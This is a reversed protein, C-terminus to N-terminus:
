YILGIVASRNLEVIILMWVLYGLVGTIFIGFGMGVWFAARAPLLHRRRRVIAIPVCVKQPHEIPLNDPPLATLTLRPLRVSAPAAIHKAEVGLDIASLVRSGSKRAPLRVKGSLNKNTKSKTHKTNAPM